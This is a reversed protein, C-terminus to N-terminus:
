EFVPFAPVYIELSRAWGMFRSLLSQKPEGMVIRIIEDLEPDFCVVDHEDVLHNFLKRRMEVTDKM